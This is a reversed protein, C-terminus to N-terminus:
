PQSAGADPYLHIGKFTVWQYDRYVLRVTAIDSPSRAAFGYARTPQGTKPDVQTDNQWSGLDFRKGQASYAELRVDKGELEKPFVIKVGVTADGALTEPADSRKNTASAMLPAVGVASAAAFPKWEGAAVGFKMDTQRLTTPARFSAMDLSKGHQDGYTQWVNWESPHPVQVKCYYDGRSVGDIDVRVMIARPGTRKRNPLSMDVSRERDTASAAKGDPSWLEHPGNLDGQVFALRLSAGNPLAAPGYFPGGPGFSMTAPTNVPPPPPVTENRVSGTGPPDSFGEKGSDKGSDAPAQRSARIMVSTKTADLVTLTVDGTGPLDQCYVHQKGAPVRTSFRGKADTLVSQVWAGSAPHAPGYIGVHVHPAPSGKEDVVEGEIVAGPILSFDASASQGAALTLGEKAVATLRNEMDAPLDLAVNYQGPPLRKITFRGNTDTVAQGWASTPSGQAGVKIGAIPKGEQTVLGTVQAAARVYIATEPNDGRNPTDFQVAGRISGFRNDDHDIMVATSGPLDSIAFRGSADTTADLGLGPIGDIQAGAMNETPPVHFLSVAAMHLSAVPRGDAELVRGLIRHAPGLLIRDVRHPTPWLTAYGVGKGPVHVVLSGRMSPAVDDAKWEAVNGAVHVAHSQVPDVGSTVIWAKAGEIPSGAQDFLRVQGSYASMTWGKLEEQATRAQSFIAPACVALGFAGAVLVTTGLRSLRTKNSRHPDLISEIRAALSSRKSVVGIAMAPYPRSPKRTQLRLLCDAYGPGSYGAALVQRDCLEEAAAEMPRRIMWVLPHWWLAIQLTRRVAGWQLDGHAVHSLEHRLVAELESETLSEALTEPLYITPRFAGAVFTGEDEASQRLAPPRIGFEHAIRSVLEAIPGTSVPRTRARM